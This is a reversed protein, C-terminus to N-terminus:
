AARKGFAKLLTEEVDFVADAMLKLLSLCASEVATASEAASAPEWVLTCGGRCIHM